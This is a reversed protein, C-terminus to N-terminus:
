IKREINLKPRAESVLKQTISSIDIHSSNSKVPKEGAARRARQNRHHEVIKAIDDSSLELPNRTMLEDLDSM